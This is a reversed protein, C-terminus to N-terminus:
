IVIFRRDGPTAAWSFRPAVGTLAAAGVASQILTRRDLTMTKSVGTLRAAPRPRANPRRRTEAHRANAAFAAARALSRRPRGRRAQKPHARRTRAGMARAGDRRRPRGMGVRRGALREAVASHLPNPGVR